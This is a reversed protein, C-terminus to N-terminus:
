VILCCHSFNKFCMRLTCCKLAIKLLDHSFTITQLKINHIDCVHKENFGIVRLKVQLNIIVIKGIMRITACLKWNAARIFDNVM